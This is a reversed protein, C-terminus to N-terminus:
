KQHRVFDFLLIYPKIDDYEPHPAVQKKLLWQITNFLESKAKQM